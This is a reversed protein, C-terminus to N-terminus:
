APICTNTLQLPDLPKFVPELVHLQKSRCSAQFTGCGNEEGIHNVEVGGTIQSKSQLSNFFNIWDEMQVGQVPPLDTRAMYAFTKNDQYKNWKWVQNEPM